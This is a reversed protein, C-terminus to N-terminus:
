RAFSRCRPVTSPSTTGARMWDALDTLAEEGLDVPYFTAGNLLVSLYARVSARFMLLGDHAASTRSTPIGRTVHMLGRHDWTIGKPKGTSGSTYDIVVPHDPAFAMPLPETGSPLRHGPMAAAPPRVPDDINIVPCSSLRGCVRSQPPRHRHRHPQSQGISTISAPSRSRPKSRCSRCAPRSPASRPSSSRPVTRSCSVSRAAASATIPSCRGRWGNSACISSTMPSRTHVPACATRDAHAAVMAAFRECVSLDRAAEDFEVFDGAPHVCRARIAAQAPPLAQQARSPANM